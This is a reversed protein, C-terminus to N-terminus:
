GNQHDNDRGDAIRGRHICGFQVPDITYTVRDTHGNANGNTNGYANGNGDTDGNANRDANGNANRDANCNTDGDADSM